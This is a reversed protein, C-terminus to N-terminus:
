IHFAHCVPSVPYVNTDEPMTGFSTTKTGTHGNNCTLSRKLIVKIETRKVVKRNANVLTSTKITALTTTNHTLQANRVFQTTKDVKSTARENAHKNPITILKDSKHTLNAQTM